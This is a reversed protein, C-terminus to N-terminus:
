LPVSRPGASIFADSLRALDQLTLENEKAALAYGLRAGDINYLPLGYTNCVARIAEVESLTYLSGYETPHSIYVMGPQVMATYSEDEYFAKLYTELAAASVKDKEPLTLVKHGMAEIAGAEHCNIHGTQACIVGQYTKLFHSIVISNICKAQTGGAATAAAKRFAPQMLSRKPRKRQSKM